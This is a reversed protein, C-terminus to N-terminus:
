LFLLLLMFYINCVVHFLLLLDTLLVVVVVVLVVILHLLHQGVRQSSFTPWVPVVVIVVVLVVVVGHLLYQVVRSLADPPRDTVVVVVVM